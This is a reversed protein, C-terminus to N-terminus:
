QSNGSAYCRAKRRTGSLALTTRELARQLEADVDHHVRHRLVDVSVGVNEHAGHHRIVFAYLLVAEGRLSTPVVKFTQPIGLMKCDATRDTSTIKFSSVWRITHRVQRSVLPWGSFIDSHCVHNEVGM